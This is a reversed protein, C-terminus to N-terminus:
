EEIVFRTSSLCFNFYKQIKTRPNVYPVMMIEALSFGGDGLIFGNPGLWAMRDTRLKRAMASMETMTTDGVQACHGIEADVLTYNPSVWALVNLSFWGKFNCYYM